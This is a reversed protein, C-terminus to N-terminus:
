ASVGQDDLLMAHEIQVCISFEMGRLELVM